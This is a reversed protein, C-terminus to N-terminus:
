APVGARTGGQEARELVFADDPENKTFGLAALQKAYVGDMSKLVAAKDLSTTKRLLPEAWKRKELVTVIVKEDGAITLSARQSRSGIICGGLEISKRKGKTLEASVGPWWAALKERIAGREALLQEALKDAEANAEAIAENRQAEIGGITAEIAAYREALATAAAITRPARVAAM